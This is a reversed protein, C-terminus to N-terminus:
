SYQGTVIGWLAAMNSSAATKRKNYEVFAAKRMGDITEKMNDNYETAARKEENTGIQDDKLVIFNETMLKNKTPLNAAVIRIPDKLNTIAVSIDKPYTFNALVHNHVAKTFKSFEQSTREVKTGLAPLM